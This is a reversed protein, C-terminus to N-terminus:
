TLNTPTFAKIPQNISCNTETKTNSTVNTVINTNTTVPNNPILLNDERAHFLTHTTQLSFALVSEKYCPLVFNNLVCNGLYLGAEFGSNQDLNMTMKSLNSIDMAQSLVNNGTQLDKVNLSANTVTLEMYKTDNADTLNGSVIAKIPVTLSFTKSNTVPNTNVIHLFANNTNSSVNNISDITFANNKLNNYTQSNSAFTNRKYDYLPITSTIAPTDTVCAKRSLANSTALKAYYQKNTLKIHGTNHLLTEQKRRIALDDADYGNTACPFITNRTNNANVNRLYVQRNELQEECNSVQPQFTEVHNKSVPKRMVNNTSSNTANTNNDNHPTDTVFNLSM